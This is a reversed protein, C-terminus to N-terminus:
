KGIPFKLSVGFSNVNGSLDMNVYANYNVNKNQVDVGLTLNEQCNNCVVYPNVETKVFNFSILAFILLIFIKM